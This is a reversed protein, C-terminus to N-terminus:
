VNECIPKLSDRSLIFLMDSVKTPFPVKMIREGRSGIRDERVEAGAREAAGKVQDRMTMDPADVSLQGEPFIYLDARPYGDSSFSSM